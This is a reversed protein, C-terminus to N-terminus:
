HMSGAMAAIRAAGAAALYDAMWTYVTNDRLDAKM